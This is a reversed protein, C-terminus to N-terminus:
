GHGHQHAQYSHTASTLQSKSDYAYTSTGDQSVMQTIRGLGAFVAGRATALVRTDSVSWSGASQLKRHTM